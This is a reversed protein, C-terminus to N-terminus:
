DILRYLARTEKAAAKETQLRSGGLWIETVTGSKSRVLRAGEGHSAFGGAKSIVATDDKRVELETAGGFPNPLGPAAVVVKDGMPVLDMAGWAGGWWRGAWDATKRTPPGHQSFAQLIRAMGELFTAPQGDMGNTLASITLGQGRLVATQSLFGQFGGSHGVTEWPGIRGQITGLGYYQEIAQDPVRWHPRTMERRSEVHLLSKKASPELQSFFRALESATSVFGTAPALARTPNDGPILTRQGLLMRAGHGKALRDMEPTPTDPWTHKLGVKGVVERLMWEGYREGTVAEIVLGALGFGHNSYKMRTNAPLVAEAALAARLEDEDLFPRRDAWQGADLGDRIVGATHSLVQSVTARALGKHLGKVHEGVRDDLRLRGAEVLKMVGVTTFTKSHSAVRFQHAPTLKVGESLDASGFAAELVPKGEHVVAISAGVQQHLRMQYGVWQPIYDLAAPLWKAM